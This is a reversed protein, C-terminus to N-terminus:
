HRRHTTMKKYLKSEKLTRLRIIGWNYLENLIQKGKGYSLIIMGIEINKEMSTRTLNGSGLFAFGEDRGMCVYLKAHLSNNYRIEVFNSRSFIEVADSHFDDEPTRTILYTKIKESEIKKILRELSFRTKGLTGLIPTVLILNIPKIDTLYFRNFFDKVPNKSVQAYPIQSIM